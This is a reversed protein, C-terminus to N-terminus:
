TSAAVLLSFFIAPRRPDHWNQQAHLISLYWLDAIGVQRRVIGNDRMEVVWQNTLLWGQSYDIAEYFIFSLEVVGSEGV